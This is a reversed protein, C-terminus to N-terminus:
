GYQYLVKLDIAFEMGCPLNGTDAPPCDEDCVEGEIPTGTYPRPQNWNVYIALDDDEKLDIPRSRNLSMTWWPPPRGKFTVTNIGCAEGALFPTCTTTIAPINITGSGNSLTNEPADAAPASTNSCVGVITFPSNWQVELEEQPFWTHNWERLLGTHDTWDDADLPDWETVSGQNSSNGKVLWASLNIPWHYSKLRENIAGLGEGSSGICPGLSTDWKPRWIIRGKMKAITVNDQFFELLMEKTVLPIRVENWGNCIQGWEICRIGCNRVPPPDIGNIEHTDVYLWGWERRKRAVAPSLRKLPIPKKRWTKRAKWWQFRGTRPGRSFKTVM